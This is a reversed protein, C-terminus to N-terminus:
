AVVLYLLVAVTAGILAYPLQTRVHDIHDSASAMSSIISTDSIPSCHDGFVGGGLVAALYLPLHADMAVALPVAIPVMLAFTGWSTGTAFAMVCALLFLGVVAGKGTAVGSILDAVYLGTGLERVTDGLAFALVLLSVVPIMGGMGQFSLDLFSQAPLRGRRVRSGPLLPVNLVALVVLSALVAWLVATSGSSAKVLDWLGAGAGAEARGTLFIGAVIGVILTVVPLVLNLPRPKLDALTDVGLVAEGVMPHAGPAMLLGEDQARQEAGRMPGMERGTLITALVIIIALMPYFNWLLSSFLTAVPSDVGAVGLLGIVLAGWGNFPVLMCIPASTSDCIYALKERSVRYRDTLPRGVTGAILATISSEVTILIGLFFPVLQAQRRNNVWGRKGVWQVFGEVGGTASMLTLVSGVLLSYLIIRTSGGDAFVAVVSTISAGVAAIPNWDELVWWGMWVGLLLAPYIQKKWIALGLATVPPLLSWIGYSEM